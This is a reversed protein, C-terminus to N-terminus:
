EYSVEKGQERLAVFIPFRLSPKGEENTTEEFYQVEIVRDLFEDQHTWIYERDRETFGGGVRVPYGKYEVVIAGLTDAFKTGVAGQDFGIVKLDCTTMEKVKLLYDTRKNQYPKDAVNIMLGEGKKEKIKAHLENVIEEDYIGEYLIPLPYVISPDVEYMKVKEAIYSKRAKCSINNNQNFFDKRTLCDFINYKLGRKDSNKELIMSSTAKFIEKSEVISEDNIVLEGDLVINGLHLKKLEDALENLGTIEKGQRTYFKIHDNDEIIAVCRFGDIKETIIIQKGVLTHKRESYKRGLMVEFTPILHPFVDNIIAVNVDCKLDKVLIGKILSRVEETEISNLLKSVENRYTDNINNSAMEDLMKKFKEFTNIKSIVTQPKQELKEVVTRSFGYMLYPNYAYEFVEKKFEAHTNALLTKKLNKGNADRLRVILDAVPKLEVELQLM